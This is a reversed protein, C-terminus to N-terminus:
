FKEAIRETYVSLSFFSRSGFALAAAGVAAGEAPLNRLTGQDCRRSQGSRLDLLLSSTEYTGRKLKASDDILSTSIIPLVSGIMMIEDEGVARMVICLTM